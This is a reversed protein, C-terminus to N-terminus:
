QVTESGKDQPEINRVWVEHRPYPLAIGERECVVLVRKQLERTIVDQKGPQTKVTVRVNVAWENLPTPGLVKPAELLQSAFNPDQAFADVFEGLVQIVRDLDEELAVRVDVFAVSWEKTLNSVIRVEGNPIIHLQGNGDRICTTRLTLREVEGSLTGVRITDGVTYQNEVLVFLGGILDKALTQAGLGVALGVVGASALLPAINIGFESLLMLVAAGVIIVSLAWASIEVLTIAQKRRDLQLREQARISRLIWRRLIQTAILGLIAVGVILAAAPLHRGLATIKEEM